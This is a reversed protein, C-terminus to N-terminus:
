TVDEYRVEVWAGQHEDWGGLRIPVKMGPLCSVLFERKQQELEKM